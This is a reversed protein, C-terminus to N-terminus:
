TPWYATAQALDPWGIPLSARIAAEDSPLSDDWRAAIIRQGTFSDAAPSALWAIPPGMIEPRLMKERPWAPLDPVFPTDTPGGPVLVTVTVGTGELEKAWVASTSELAAKTGGYPQVRLMTLFSTTNNVIRGWGGAKMHPLAARTMMVAGLLNVEFFQRWRDPTLEEISPHNIEADPRLVSVGLGANNVLVDVGGFAEVAAAVAAACDGEKRVDSRVTLVGDDAGEDTFAAAADALADADRDALVVRHGGALLARAMARGLGGAGGTIVATRQQEKRGDAM